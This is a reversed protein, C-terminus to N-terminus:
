VDSYRRCYSLKKVLCNIFSNLLTVLNPLVHSHVMAYNIPKLIGAVCKVNKNFVININLNNFFWVEDKHQM